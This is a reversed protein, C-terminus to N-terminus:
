PKLGRKSTPFYLATIILESNPDKAIRDTRGVTIPVDDGHMPHKTAYFAHEPGIKIRDIKEMLPLMDDDDLSDDIWAKLQDVNALVQAKGHLDAMWVGFTPRPKPKKADVDPDHDTYTDLDRQTMFESTMRPDLSIRIKPKGSM